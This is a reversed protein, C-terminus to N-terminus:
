PQASLASLSCCCTKAWQEGFMCVMSYSDACYSGLAPDPRNQKCIQLTKQFFRCWVDSYYNEFIRMLISVMFTQRGRGYLWVPQGIVENLWHTLAALDYKHIKKDLTIHKRILFAVGIRPISKRTYRFSHLMKHMHIYRICTLTNTFSNM